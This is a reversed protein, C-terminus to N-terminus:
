LLGDSFNIVNTFIFDIVIFHGYRVRNRLAKSPGYTIGFTDGRRIERVFM